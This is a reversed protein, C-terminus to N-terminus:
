QGTTAAASTGDGDAAKAAAAAAAAKKAEAAAKMAALQEPTFKPKPPAKKIFTGSVLFDEKKTGTMMCDTTLTIAKRACFDACLGCFTCSTMDFTFTIEMDGPEGGPAPKQTRAMCQPACVKMCMGCNVCLTPDYAIRGRYNEAGTPAPGAPFAETVPKKLLNALAQPLYPLIPLKM